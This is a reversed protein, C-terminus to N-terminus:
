HRKKRYVAVGVGGLVIVAVIILIIWWVNSSNELETMDEGIVVVYDSAHSFELSANGSEDIKGANMFVLKGSSDYYYLNGYQGAYESGLNLNLDAKFGFDGDFTLSLQRTPKGGALKDIIRNPIANSNIKVELNVDKLEKIDKGNITWSYGGMDLVVDVDQGKAAELIGKPVVTAVSGDDNIMSVKVKPTVVDGGATAQAIANQVAASVEAIKENIKTEDLVVAKVGQVETTKAVPVENIPKVEVPTTITPSPVVQVPESNRVVNQEPVSATITTEQEETITPEPSPAVVIDQATEPTVVPESIVIPEPTVSPEPEPKVVPKPQPKKDVISPSGNKYTLYITDHNLVPTMSRVEGKIGTIDSRLAQYDSLRGVYGKDQMYKIIQAETTVNKPVALLVSKNPVYKYREGQKNVANITTTTPYNVQSIVMDDYSGYIATGYYSALESTKMNLINEPIVMGGLLSFRTDERKDVTNEDVISKFLSDSDFVGEINKQIVNNDKDLYCTACKLPSKTYVATALVGIGQYHNITWGSFGLEQPHAIKTNLFASITENKEDNFFTGLTDTKRSYSSKGNYTSSVFYSVQTMIYAKGYKAKLAIVGDEWYNDVIEWGQFAAENPFQCHLNQRVNEATIDDGFVVGTVNIEKYPCNPNVKGDYDVNDTLYNQLIVRKYQKTYVPEVTISSYSGMNANGNNTTWKVFKIDSNVDSGKPLIKNLDDENFERPVYYTHDNLYEQINNLSDTQNMYLGTTKDYKTYNTMNVLLAKKEYAYTLNVTYTENYEYQHTSPNYTGTGYGLNGVCIDNVNLLNNGNNSAVIGICRGLNKDPEPTILGGGVLKELSIHNSVDSAKFSQTQGTAPDYININVDKYVKTSCTGDRMVWYYSNCVSSDSGWFGNYYSEVIYDVKNDYDTDGEISVSSVKWECPYLEDAKISGQYVNEGNESGVYHLSICHIGDNVQGELDAQIFINGSYYDKRAWEEKTNTKVTYTIVDGDNVVEDDKDSSISTIKSTNTTFKDPETYDFEVFENNELYVSTDKLEVNQLWGNVSVTCSSTSKYTGAVHHKGFRLKGDYVFSNNNSAEENFGLSTYTSTLAYQGNSGAYFGVDMPFSDVKRDLVLSVLTDAGQEADNLEVNENSVSYNICNVKTRNLTININDKTCDYSNVNGSDDTFVIKTITMLGEPNNYYNYNSNIIDGISIDFTATETQDDPDNVTGSAMISAGNASYGYITARDIKGQADYGSITFRLMESASNQSSNDFTRGNKDLTVEKIVPANVDYNNAALAEASTFALSFVMIFCLMGAAIQRLHKINM